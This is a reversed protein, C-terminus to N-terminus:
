AEARTQRPEPWVLEFRELVTLLDGSFQEDLGLAQAMDRAHRGVRIAEAHGGLM